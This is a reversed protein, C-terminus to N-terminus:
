INEQIKATIQVIRVRMTIQFKHWKLYVTCGLHNSIYAIKYLHRYSYTYTNTTIVRTESPETLRQSPEVQRHYLCHTQFLRPTNGLCSPCRIHRWSQCLRRWRWRCFELSRNQRLTPAVNKSQNLDYGTTMRENCRPEPFFIWWQQSKSLSILLTLEFEHFPKDTCCISIM